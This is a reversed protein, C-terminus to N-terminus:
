THASRLVRVVKAEIFDFLFPFRVVDASNVGAISVSQSRHLRIFISVISLELKSLPILIAKAEIFDFLFPFSVVDM